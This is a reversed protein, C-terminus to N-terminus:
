SKKEENDSSITADELKKFLYNRLELADNITKMPLANKRINEMGFYNTETGTAIVLYDYELEGSSLNVKNKGADIKLLEGLRFHLNKKNHFMKRFPYSINSAELFGTSVQYLLPPFFNYNNKDVLTIQFNDSKSLDSALNIGAFGGGIIVVKKEM